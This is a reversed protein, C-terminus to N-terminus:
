RVKVERLTGKKTIEFFKLGQVQNKKLTRFFKKAHKESTFRARMTMGEMIYEVVYKFM